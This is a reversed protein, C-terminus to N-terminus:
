GDDNLCADAVIAAFSRPRGAARENALIARLAGETEALRRCVLDLDCRPWNHRRPHHALAARVAEVVPRLSTGTM